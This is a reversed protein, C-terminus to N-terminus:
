TVESQAQMRPDGLRRRVGAGAEYETLSRTYLGTVEAPAGGTKACREAFTQLVFGLNHRTNAYHSPESAALFGDAAVRLQDELGGPGPDAWGRPAWRDFSWDMPGAGKDGALKALIFPQFLSYPAEADGVSRRAETVAAFAASAADLLSLAEARQAEASATDGGAEAKKAADLRQFAVSQQAVGCEYRTAWLLRLTKAHLTKAAQDGAAAEAAAATLQVLEEARAILPPFATPDGKGSVRRIYERFLRARAAKEALELGGDQV